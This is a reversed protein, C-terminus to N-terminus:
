EPKEDGTCFVMRFLAGIRGFIERFISDQPCVNMFAMRSMTAEGWKSKEPPNGKYAIKPPILKLKGDAFSNHTEKRTQFNQKNLASGDTFDTELLVEGLEVMKPNKEVASVSSM